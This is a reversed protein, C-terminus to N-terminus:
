IEFIEIMELRRHDLLEMLGKWPDQLHHGGFQRLVPAQELRPQMQLINVKSRKFSVEIASETKCFTACKRM